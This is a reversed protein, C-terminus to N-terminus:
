AESRTLILPQIGIKVSNLGCKLANVQRCIEDTVANAQAMKEESIQEDIKQFLVADLLREAHMGDRCYHLVGAEDFLTAVKAIKTTAIGLAGDEGGLERFLAHQPFGGCALFFARRFVVNGGCTMRMHQWAFDFNPHEAYRTALGIPKLALRVLSTDPQFHFTAAAVELAGQEYADDADLFAILENTSQLAGWNRAKAVGGNKSMSEVFIREPYQAAFHNALALTGDTSADDVLWIKGLYPQSLVSEVARTLTKEVNYCPIIVDIHPFM